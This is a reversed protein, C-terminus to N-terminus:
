KQFMSKLTELRQSLRELAENKKEGKGSNEDAEQKKLVMKGSYAGTKGSITMSNGSYTYSLTLSHGYASVKIKGDGFSGSASIGLATLTCTGDSRFTAYASGTKGTGNFSGKWRGEPSEAVAMGNCILAFVTCLLVIKVTTNKRM